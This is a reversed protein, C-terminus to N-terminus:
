LFYHQSTAIVVYVEGALSIGENVDIAALQAYTATSMEIPIIASCVTRQETIVVVHGYLVVGETKFYRCCKGLTPHSTIIIYTM